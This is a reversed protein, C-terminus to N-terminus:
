ANVEEPVREAPIPAAEPFPAKVTVVPCPAKRV